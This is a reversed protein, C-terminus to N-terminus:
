PQRTHGSVASVAPIVPRTGSISADVEWGILLVGMCEPCLDVIQDVPGNRIPRDM